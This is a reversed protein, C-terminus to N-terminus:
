DLIKKYLQLQRIFFFVEKPDLEFYHGMMRVLGFTNAREASRSLNVQRVFFKVDREALEFYEALIRAIFEFTTEERRRSALRISNNREVILPPSPQLPSPCLATDEV